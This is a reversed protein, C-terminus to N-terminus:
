EEKGENQWHLYASMMWGLGVSAIAWAGLIILWVRWDGFFTM